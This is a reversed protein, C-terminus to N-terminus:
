AGHGYRIQKTGKACKLRGPGQQNKYSCTWSGVRGKWDATYGVWTVKEMARDRVKYATACSVGKASVTQWYEVDPCQQWSAASVPTTGALLSLLVAGMLSIGLTATHKRHSRMSGGAELLFHSM